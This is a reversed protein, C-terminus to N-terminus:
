EGERRCRYSTEPLAELDPKIGLAVLRRRMQWITDAAATAERDHRERLTECTQRTLGSEVKGADNGVTRWLTWRDSSCAALLFSCLVVKTCATVM